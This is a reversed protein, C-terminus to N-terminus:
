GHVCKQVLIYFFHFFTEDGNTILKLNRLENIISRSEVNYYNNEM